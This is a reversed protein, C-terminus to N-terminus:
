EGPPLDNAISAQAEASEMATTAVYAPHEGSDGVSIGAHCASLGILMAAAMMASRCM